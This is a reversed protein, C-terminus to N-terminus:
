FFDLVILWDVSCTPIPPGEVSTRVDVVGAPIAYVETSELVNAFSINVPPESDMRSFAKSRSVHIIQKYRLPVDLAAKLRSLLLRGEPPADVKIKMAIPASATHEKTVREFIVQFMTMGGPLVVNAYLDKRIYVDCKRSLGKLKSVQIFQKNRLPSLLSPSHRVSHLFTCHRWKSMSSDQCSTSM